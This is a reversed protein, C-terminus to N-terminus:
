TICPPTLKRTQKIKQAYNFCASPNEKLIEKELKSLKGIFKRKEPSNKVFNLKQQILPHILFVM